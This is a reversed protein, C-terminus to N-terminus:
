LEAPDFFMLNDKTFLLLRNNGASVLANVDGVSGTFGPTLLRPGMTFTNTDCATIGSQLGPQWYYATDNFPDPEVAGASILPCTGLTTLSEPEILNGGIDYLIDNKIKIGFPTIENRAEDAVTLGNADVPIIFRSRSSAIGFAVAGDSRYFLAEMDNTGIAGSPSSVGLTYIDLSGSLAVLLETDFNPSAALVVPLDTGDKPPPPQTPILTALTQSQLDVEAILTAASLAVYLRNGSGSMTLKTPESGVYIYKLIAGTVPDIIAVSNGNPGAIGPTSAYVLNRSADYIADNFRCSVQLFFAPGLQGSLDELVCPDELQTPILLSKDLTHIEEDFAFVLTEDNTELLRIPFGSTVMRYAGLAVLRDEDYFDILHSTRDYFYVIGSAKDVYVVDRGGSGFKHVIEGIVNEGDVDFVRGGSVFTYENGISIRTQTSGSFSRLSKVLTAGASGITVVSATRGSSNTDVGVINSADRFEFQTPLSGGDLIDPLEVGAEYVVMERGGSMMVVVTDTTGPVIRLSFAIREAASSQSVGLNVPAGTTFSALNIPLIDGVTQLGLWITSEDDSLVLPGPQGDLNLSRSVILTAPDIEFVGADNSVYLMDAASSYVIDNVSHTISRGILTPIILRRDADPLILLNSVIHGRLYDNWTGSGNTGSTVAIFSGSGNPDVLTEVSDGISPIVRVRSNSAGSCEVVGIEPFNPTTGRLSSATACSFQGREGISEITYAFDIVYGSADVERSVSVRSYLETGGEGYVGGRVEVTEGAETTITLSEIEDTASFAVTITGVLLVVRGTLTEIQMTTPLDISIIGSVSLDPNITFAAVESLANGTMRGYPGEPRCGMLTSEVVDGNTITGGFDNDILTNATVGFQCGTEATLRGSDALDFLNNLIIVSLQVLSEAGTMGAAGVSQANDPTLALQVPGSPSATGGGGCASLTIFMVTLIVRTM